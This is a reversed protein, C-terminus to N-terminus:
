PTVAIDAADGIHRCAMDWESTMKCIWCGHRPKACAHDRAHSIDQKDLVRLESVLAGYEQGLM